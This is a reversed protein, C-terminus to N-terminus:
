ARQQEIRNRRSNKTTGKQKMKIRKQDGRNETRERQQKKTTYKSSNKYKSSTKV